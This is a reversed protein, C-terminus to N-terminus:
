FDTELYISAVDIGVASTNNCYRYARPSLLTTIAPLQTGVTAATLTGTASFATGHRVVRYGVTNGTGSPSSYLYLEYMDASLTNCPFNAGLDVPTQATSGGYYIRYNTDAAEHGIGICNTMTTILINAPVASGTNMGYFSRPGTAHSVADSTGFKMHFFFGGLSASGLTWQSAPHFMSAASGSTAASVIGLRKVRTFLNTTAVNRATLTGSTTFASFGELPPATNANGQPNWWSIKNNFIAPQFYHGIGDTQQWKPMDRNAVNRVFISTKNAENTPDTATPVFCIANGSGSLELHNISNNWSLNASGTFAGAGNNFQISASPGGPSGGTPLGLYSSASITTGSITTFRAVSGTTTTGTLSVFNGVSGTFTSGTVNGNFYATGSWNVYARVSGSNKLSLLTSTGAMNRFSDVTLLAASGSNADVGPKITYGSNLGLAGTQGTFGNFNYTGFNYGTEIEGLGIQLGQPGTYLKGVQANGATRFTGTIRVNSSSINTSSASMVIGMSSSVELDTTVADYGVRSQEGAGFYLFSSGNYGLNAPSFRYSSGGGELYLEPASSSPFDIWRNSFEHTSTSNGDQDFMRFSLNQNFNVTGTVGSPPGIEVYSQDSWLNLDDNIARISSGGNHDIRLFASGSSRFEVAALADTSNVVLTGTTDTGIYFSGSKDISNPIDDATHPGFSLRPNEDVDNIVQSMRFKDDNGFAIGLLGAGSPVDTISKLHVYSNTGSGDESWNRFRLAIQDGRTGTLGGTNVRPGVSLSKFNGQSSEGPQIIIEASSSLTTYNDDASKLTSAIVRTETADYFDLNVETTSDNAHLEAVRNAGRYISFSAGNYSGGTNDYARAVFYDGYSDSDPSVVINQQTPDTNLSAFSTGSFAGSHNYQISNLPGGPTVGGGSATSWVGDGRLYTTSSPTGSASINAISVCNNNLLGALNVYGDYRISAVTSGTHQFAAIFPAGSNNTTNFTFHGPVSPDLATNWTSSFVTRYRTAVAGTLFAIGSTTENQTNITTTRLTNFSGTSGTFSSGSISTTAFLSGTITTIGNVTLPSTPATTGIGVWGSASIYVKPTSGSVRFNFGYNSDILADQGTTGTLQIWTGAASNNLKLVPTGGSNHKIDVRAAPVTEGIGVTGDTGKIRIRETNATGNKITMDGSIENGISAQSATVNGAAIQLFGIRPVYSGAGDDTYGFLTSNTGQPTRVRVPGATAGYLGDGVYSTFASLFSASSATWLNGLPGVFLKNTGSNNMSALNGTTWATGSTDVYLANVGAADAFTTKVTLMGAPEVGGVNGIGIGFRGGTSFRGFETTGSASTWAYQANAPAHQAARFLMGWNADSYLTGATWTGGGMVTLTKGKVTTNSVIDSSMSVNTGTIGGSVFISSTFYTNYGPPPNIRINGFTPAWTSEVGNFTIYSARDLGYLILSATFFSGANPKGVYLNTGSNTGIWANTVNVDFPYISSTTNVWSASSLITTGTLPGTMVDGVKAVKESDLEAIASQVNSSSVNGTPTYTVSIAPLSTVSGGPLSNVQRYDTGEIYNPVRGAGQAQYIVSYLVKWERTTINPFTLQGALRAQGLTGYEQQGVVVSIPYILDNTAYVYNVVYNNVGAVNTLTGSNDFQLQTGSTNQAFAGTVNNRFTMQTASASTYWLRCNTVTSSINIRIDEDYIVGPYISFTTNTFTGALGSDYATGRTNHLYRHTARDRDAAHREDTLTGSSGNYYITSVPAIQDSTIEWPTVSSTLVGSANFFIFNEGVTAPITTTQSGTKTYLTNNAWFTYSSSVPVVTVIRTADVFSISSSTRNDFGALEHAGIEYPSNFDRLRITYIEGAASGTVSTGSFNIRSFGGQDTGTVSISIIPSLAM